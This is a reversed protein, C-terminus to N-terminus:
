KKGRKMQQKAGENFGRQFVFYAMSELTPCASACHVAMGDNNWQRNFEEEDKYGNFEIPVSASKKGRKM